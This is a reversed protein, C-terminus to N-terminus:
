RNNPTKYRYIPAERSGVLNPKRPPRQVHPVSPTNIITPKIEVAPKARPPEVPPKINELFNNNATLYAQYSNTPM